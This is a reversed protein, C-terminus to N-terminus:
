CLSVINDLALGLALSELPSRGKGADEIHTIEEYGHLEMVETGVLPAPGRQWITRQPDRSYWKLEHVGRHEALHNYCRDRSRQM